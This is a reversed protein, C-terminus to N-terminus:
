QPKSDNYKKIKKPVNLDSMKLRFFSNVINILVYM